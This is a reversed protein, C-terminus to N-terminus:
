RPHKQEDYKDERKSKSLNPQVPSRADEGSPRTGKLNLGHSMAM